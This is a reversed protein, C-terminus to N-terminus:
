DKKRKKRNYQAYSVRYYDGDFVTEFDPPDAPIVAALSDDGALGKVEIPKALGRSSFYMKQGLLREDDTKTMYKCVYAGLNDVEDIKNVKIFGRGWIGGLRNAPMYPMNFFLVHYHIAGRKQFEVVAVYLAKFGIDYELRQRFLKFEYNAAKLDTVNDAFTLTLFKAGDCMNANILRRLDRRARGLVKERNRAKAEDDLPRGDGGGRGVKKLDEYGYEVPVSYRYIETVDGSIVIKKDYRM